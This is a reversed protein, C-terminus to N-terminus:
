YTGLTWAEAGKNENIKEQNCSIGFTWDEAGKNEDIKEQNCSIRLAEVGKNEDIKGPQLQDTPDLGRSM